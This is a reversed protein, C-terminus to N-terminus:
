KPTKDPRIWQKTVPSPYSKGWKVGRHCMRNNLHCKHVAHWQFGELLEETFKREFVVAYNFKKIILLISLLYIIIVQTAKSCIALQFSNMKSGTCPEVNIEWQTRFGQHIEVGWAAKYSILSPVLLDVVDRLAWLSLCLVIDWVTGQVYYIITGQPANGFCLDKTELEWWYEVWHREQSCSSPRSIGHQCHLHM